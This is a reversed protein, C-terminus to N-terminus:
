VLHIFIELSLIRVTVSILDILLELLVVEFQITEDVIHVFRDTVKDHSVLHVKQLAVPAVHPLDRAVQILILTCQILFFEHESAVIADDLKLVVDVPKLLFCQTEGLQVQVQLLFVKQQLLLVHYKILLFRNSLLGSQFDSLPCTLEHLRELSRIAVLAIEELLELHCGYM